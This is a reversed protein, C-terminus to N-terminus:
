PHSFDFIIGTKPQKMSQQAAVPMPPIFSPPRNYRQMLLSNAWLPQINKSEQSFAFSCFRLGHETNCRTIKTTQINWIIISRFKGCLLKLNEVKSQLGLGPWFGYLSQWIIIRLIRSCNMKQFTVLQICLYLFFQTGLYM